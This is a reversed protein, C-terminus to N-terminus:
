FLVGYHSKIYQELLMWLIIDLYKHLRWPPITHQLYSPPDEQFVSVSIPIPTPYIEFMYTLPHILKNFIRSIQYMFPNSFSIQYKSPYWFLFNPVKIPKLILSQYSSPNQACFKSLPLIQVLFKPLQTPRGIGFCSPTFGRGRPPIKKQPPPNEQPVSKTNLKTGGTGELWIIKFM